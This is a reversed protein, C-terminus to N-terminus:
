FPKVVALIVVAFLILVPLENFIRFFLDGHTNRDEAFRRVFVGCAFHYAVLIAVLAIKIHLWLAGRYFEWATVTMYLGIGVAIVAFPTIFRYLRHEMGKLQESVAPDTCTAHNVFLRPLYFIGAFWCVVFIIHFAKLWLM